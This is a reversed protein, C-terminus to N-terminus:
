MREKKRFDTGSFFGVVKKGEIAINAGKKVSTLQRPLASIEVLSTAHGAQRLSM